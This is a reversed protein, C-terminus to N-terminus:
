RSSATPPWGPSRPRAATPAPPPAPSRARTTSSSATSATPPRSSPRPPDDARGGLCTSRPVLKYEGNINGPPAPKQAGPDPPDRAFEAQLEEDGVTGTFAGDGHEAALAETGGELCSVDGTLEDDQFRLKGATSGDARQMTVFQGSQRLDFQPGLCAQGASVDYGGAIAPQPDTDTGVSLVLTAVVAVAAVLVVYYATLRRGAM